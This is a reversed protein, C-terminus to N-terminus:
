MCNLLFVLQLSFASTVQLALRFEAETVALQKQLADRSVQLQEQQQAHKSAEANRSEVGHKIQTEYWQVICELGKQLAPLAEPTSLLQWYQTHTHANADPIYMQKNSGIGKLMQKQSGQDLDHSMALVASYEGCSVNM